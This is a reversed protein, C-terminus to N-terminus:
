AREVSNIRRSMGYIMGLIQACIAAILVVLLFAWLGLFDDDSMYTAGGLLNLLLFVVALDFIVSCKFANVLMAEARSQALVCYLVLPVILRAYYISAFWIFASLDFQESSLTYPVGVIMRAATYGALFPILVYCTGALSLIKAWTIKM